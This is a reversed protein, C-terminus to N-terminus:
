WDQVSPQAIVARRRGVWVHLVRLTEVMVQVTHDESDNYSAAVRRMDYV